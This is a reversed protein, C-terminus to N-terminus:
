FYLYGVNKLAKQQNLKQVKLPSLILFGSSTYNNINM